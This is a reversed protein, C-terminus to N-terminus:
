DGARVEHPARLQLTFDVREEGLQKQAKDCAHFATGSLLARSYSGGGRNADKETGPHTDPATFYTQESSLGWQKRYSLRKPPPMNGEPRGESGM